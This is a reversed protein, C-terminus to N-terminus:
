TSVFGFKSFRIALVSTSNQFTFNEPVEKGSATVPLLMGRRHTVHRGGGLHDFFYLFRQIYNNSYQKSVYFLRFIIFNSGGPVNTRGTMVDLILTRNLWEALAFSAVVFDYFKMFRLLIFQFRVNM